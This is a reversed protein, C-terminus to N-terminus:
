TETKDSTQWESSHLGYRPLSKEDINNVAVTSEGTGCNWKGHNWDHVTLKPGFNNFPFYWFYFNM